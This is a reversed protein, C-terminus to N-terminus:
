ICIYLWINIHCCFIFASLPQLVSDSRHPTMYPKLWRSNSHYFANCYRWLSRSPMDFWSEKSLRKNLRQDFFYWLEADSAEILPNWRHGTFEGWLPDTVRFINGNSLTMMSLRFLPGQSIHCIDGRHQKLFIWTISVVLLEVHSVHLKTEYTGVIIDHCPFLKGIIPGKYLLGHTVLTNAVVHIITSLRFLCVFFWDFQRHNSVDHGEYSAMTSYLLDVKLKSQRVMTSHNITM